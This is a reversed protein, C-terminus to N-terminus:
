SIEYVKMFFRSFDQFIKFLKVIEFVQCFRQLGVSFGLFGLFGVLISRAIAQCYKFFEFLISFILLRSFDKLIKSFTEFIKSFQSNNLVVFNPVRDKLSKGRFHKRTLFSPKIVNNQQKKFMTQSLVETKQQVM